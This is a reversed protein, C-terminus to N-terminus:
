DGNDLNYNCKLLSVLKKISESQQVTAQDWSKSSKNYGAVVEIGVSDDNMPYRDPYAKLKEHDHIKKRM